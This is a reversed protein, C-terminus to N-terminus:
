NKDSKALTKKAINLEQRLQAVKRELRNTYAKSQKAKTQLELITNTQRKMAASQIQITAFKKEATRLVKQTIEDALQTGTARQGRAAVNENRQQRQNFQGKVDSTAQIAAALRTSLEAMKAKLALNEEQLTVVQQNQGGCGVIALLALSLAWPALRKAFQM